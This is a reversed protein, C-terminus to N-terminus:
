TRLFSSGEYALYNGSSSFGRPVLIIALGVTASSTHSLFTIMPKMIAGDGDAGTRGNRRSANNM